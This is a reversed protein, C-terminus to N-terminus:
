TDLSFHRSIRSSVRLSDPMGGTLSVEDRESGSCGVLLPALAGDSMSIEETQDGPDCAVVQGLGL